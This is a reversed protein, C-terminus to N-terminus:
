RCRNCANKASQICNKKCFCAEGGNEASEHVAKTKIPPKKIDSMKAKGNKVREPPAKSKIPEKYRSNGSKQNKRLRARIKDSRTWTLFLSTLYQKVVSFRSNKHYDFLM